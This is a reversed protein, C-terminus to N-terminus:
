SRREFRLERVGNLGGLRVGPIIRLWQFWGTIFRTRTFTACGRSIRSRSLCTCNWYQFWVKRGATGDRDNVQRATVSHLHRILVLLRKPDSLETVFHYHNPFIAWAQLAASYHDALLLLQRQLEDLRARSSFIATKGYTAATVMFAGASSLRHVPSHPWDSM